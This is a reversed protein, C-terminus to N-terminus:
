DAYKFVCVLDQYVVSLRHLTLGGFIGGDDEVLRLVAQAYPNGAVLEECGPDGPEVELRLDTGFDDPRGAAEFAREMALLADHDAVNEFCVVNLSKRPGRAGSQEKVYLVWCRLIMKALTMTTTTTTTTAPPTMTTTTTTTTAAVPEGSIGMAKQTWSATYEMVVQPEENGAAAATTRLEYREFTDRKWLQSDTYPEIAEPTFTRRNPLHVICLGQDLLVNHGNTGNPLSM